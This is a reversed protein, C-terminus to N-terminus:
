PSQLETTHEESRAHGPRFRPSRSSLFFMPHWLLRRLNGPRKTKRDGVRHQYAPDHGEAENDKGAYGHPVGFLNRAPRLIEPLPHDFAQVVEQLPNDAM